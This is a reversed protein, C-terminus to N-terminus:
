PNVRTRSDQTGQAKLTKVYAAWDSEIKEFDAGLVEARQVFQKSENGKSNFQILEKVKEVGVKNIMYTLFTFAQTDFLMRDQQDKPLVRSAGGQGGSGRTSGASAGAPQTAGQGGGTQAASQSGGTRTGSAAPATGGQAQGGARGGGGAAGGGGQATAAVFPRSSALIDELPFTEDMHQQLYAVNGMGGTAYTGIAVDLWDALVSRGVDDVRSSRYQTNEKPFLAQLVANAMQDAAARAAAADQAAIAEPTRSKLRTQVEAPVEGGTQVKMRQITEDVRADSTLAILIWKYGARLVRPEYVSDKQQLSSCIFIAGRPLDNGLITALRKQTEAFPTEFMTTVQRSSAFFDVGSVGSAYKNFGKFSVNDVQQGMAPIAFLLLASFLVRYMLM